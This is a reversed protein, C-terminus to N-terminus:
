SYHKGGHSTEVHDFTVEIDLEFFDQGVVSWLKAGLLDLLFILVWKFPHKLLKADFMTVSSWISWLGVTLYLPKPTGKFVVEKTTGVVACDSLKFILQQLVNVVVVFHSGM